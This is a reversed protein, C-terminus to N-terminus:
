SQEFIKLRIEENAMLQNRLANNDEHFASSDLFLYTSCSFIRGVHNETAKDAFNLGDIASEIDGIVSDIVAECQLFNADKREKKMSKMISNLERAVDLDPVSHFGWKAVFTNFQNAVGSHSRRADIELHKLAKEFEGVGILAMALNHHAYDAVHDSEESTSLCYELQHVYKQLYQRSRQAVESLSNVVRLSLDRRELMKEIKKTYDSDNRELMRLATVVETDSANAFQLLRNLDAVANETMNMAQYARARRMLLSTDDNKSDIARGLAAIEGEFDGMASRVKAELDAIEDDHSHALLIKEIKSSVEERSRRARQRSGKSLDALLKRLALLAGEKDELNHTIINSTLNNYEKALRSNPREKAFISHALVYLSGYHHVLNLSSPEYQLHQAAKDLLNALIQQEDDLDPVNAACFEIEIPSQSRSKEGRVEEIIPSIGSINQMTPLFMAVLLDPLQRTCIGGVDTHGTRSDVLVYDFGVNEFLQWQQKLDEFLLYGKEEDYLKRWDISALKRGYEITSTDGSPMIWISDDDKSNQYIYDKFDPAIGTRRYEEVYDVLGKSIKLDSFCQYMPLSPAELDFDVVLVRKGKQALITAVNALAM